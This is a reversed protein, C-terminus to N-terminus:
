VYLVYGIYTCAACYSARARPTTPETGNLLLWDVTALLEMALPSELDADRPIVQNMGTHFM